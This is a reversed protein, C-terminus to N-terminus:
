LQFFCPSNCIYKRLCVKFVKVKKINHECEDAIINRKRRRERERERKELAVPDYAIFKFMKRAPSCKTWWYTRYNCRCLFSKFFSFLNSYTVFIICTCIYMYIYINANSETLLINSFKNLPCSCKMQCCQTMKQKFKSKIEIIPVVM